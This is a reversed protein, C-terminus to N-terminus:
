NVNSAEDELLFCNLGVGLNALEQVDVAGISFVSEGECSVNIEATYRESLRRLVDASPRLLRLLFRVQETASLDTSCHLDWTSSKAPQSAGELVEGKRFVQSPQMGLLQTIAEVEFDGWLSFHGTYESM